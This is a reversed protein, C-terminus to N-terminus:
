PKPGQAETTCRGQLNTKNTRPKNISCDRSPSAGHQAEHPTSPPTLAVHKSSMSSHQNQTRPHWGISVREPVV